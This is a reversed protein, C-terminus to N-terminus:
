SAHTAGLARRLMLVARYRRSKQAPSNDLPGDGLYEEAAARYIPPLAAVALWLAARRQEAALRCEQDPVPAALTDAANDALPACTLHRRERRLLERACNAGVRYAWTALDADGTYAARTAVALYVRQLADKRMEPDRVTRAIGRAAAHAITGWETM